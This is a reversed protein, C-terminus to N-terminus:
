PRVYTFSSLRVAFDGVDSTCATSMYSVHHAYDVHQSPLVRAFSLPQCGHEVKVPKRVNELYM